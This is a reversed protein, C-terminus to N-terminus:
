WTFYREAIIGVVRSAGAAVGAKAPGARTRPRPPPLAKTRLQWDFQARLQGLRPQGADISSPLRSSVIRPVKAYRCWHMFAHLRSPLWARIYAHERTNMRMHLVSPARDTRFARIRAARSIYSADRGRKRRM